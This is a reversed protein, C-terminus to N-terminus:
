AMVPTLSTKEDPYDGETWKHKLVKPLPAKNHLFYIVLNNKNEQTSEKKLNEAVADWGHQKDIEEIEETVYDKLEQESALSSLAGSNLKEYFLDITRQRLEPTNM